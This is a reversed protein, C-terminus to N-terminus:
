IGDQALHTWDVYEWLIERHEMKFHREDVVRMGKGEPEWELITYANRLEGVHSMGRGDWGVENSGM